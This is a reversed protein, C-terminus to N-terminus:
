YAIATSVACSSFVQPKLTRIRPGINTVTKAAAVQTYLTVSCGTHFTTVTCHARSQVHLTKTTFLCTLYM